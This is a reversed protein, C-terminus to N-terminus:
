PPVQQMPSGCNQDTTFGASSSNRVELFESSNAFRDTTSLLIYLQYNFSEL